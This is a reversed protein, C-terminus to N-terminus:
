RHPISVPDSAYHKGVGLVTPSVYYAGAPNLYERSILKCFDEISAQYSDYKKAYRYPDRDYAMIGFLNKKDRAITSRGFNSEHCAVACAFVANVRWKQEAEAFDKGLGAIPTNALYRDLLEADAHSPLRLDTDPEISCMHSIKVVKADDWIVRFGFGEILDRVRCYTRNEILHGEIETGNPLYIKVCGVTM